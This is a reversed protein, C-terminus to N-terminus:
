GWLETILRKEKELELLIDKNEKEKGQHTNIIEQITKIVDNGMSVGGCIYVNCKQHLISDIILDKEEMLKHQVYYKTEKDRSFALHIKKLVSNEQFLKLDEEYIYDHDRNRSGFFLTLDNVDKKQSIKSYHYEQLFCIFPAIGTGTSIMLLPRRDEPLRFSSERVTLRSTIHGSGVKEHINKFYKSTLGYKKTGNSMFDVLSIVIELKNGNHFNQSSAVTYYRPSIKPMINYFDLFSINLSDYKNLFDIIGMNKSLFDRMKEEKNRNGKKL